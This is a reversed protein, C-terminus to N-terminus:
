VKLILFPSVQLKEMHGKIGDRHLSQHATMLETYAPIARKIVTVEIQSQAKWDVVPSGIM